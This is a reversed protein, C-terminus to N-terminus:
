ARASGNRAAPLDAESIAQLAGILDIQHLALTNMLPSVPPRLPLIRTGQPWSM